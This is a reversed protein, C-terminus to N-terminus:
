RPHRKRKIVEHVTKLPYHRLGEEFEVLRLVDERGFVITYPKRALKPKGKIIEGEFYVAM